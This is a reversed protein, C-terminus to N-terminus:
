RKAQIAEVIDKSAKGFIAILKQNTQVVGTAGLQKIVAIEINATDRLTFSAKSNTAEMNEINSIGGLATVLRDIDISVKTTSNIVRKNKLVSITVLWLLIAIIVIITTYIMWDLM